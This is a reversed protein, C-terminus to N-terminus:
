NKFWKPLSYVSWGSRGHLWLPDPIFKDDFQHRLRGIKQRIRDGFTIQYAINKSSDVDLPSEVAERACVGGIDGNTDLEYVRVIEEAVGPWWLSDDDPFMVVSSQVYELGTNRQHSLNAKTHVIELQVKSGNMLAIVTKRVEEHNDSADVIILKKPPRDQKLILPISLKLAKPRNMTAIVVDYDM